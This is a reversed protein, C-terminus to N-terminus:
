ALIRGFMSTTWTGERIFTRFYELTAFCISRKVIGVPNRREAWPQIRLLSGQTGANIIILGSLTADLSPLSPHLGKLTSLFKQENVWPLRALEAVRPQFISDRQSEDHFCDM